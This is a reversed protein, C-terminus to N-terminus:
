TISAATWYWGSAGLCAVRSTPATPAHAGRILVRKCARGSAAAYANVISVEVTGGLAPDDVHTTEGAAASAIAALAVSTPAAAPTLANFGEGAPPGACAALALM